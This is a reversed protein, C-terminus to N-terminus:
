YKAVILRDQDFKYNMGVRFINDSFRSNFAPTLTAAPTVTPYTAISGFDMHLYELKGTWNGFLSAEVGAGVTWGARIFNNEFATNIANGIPETVTGNITIEAIAVGATMYFVWGPVVTTGLRGRLTTFWSLKHDLSIRVPADVPLLGANCVAGPCAFAVGGHQAAAQLDGEVGVLWINSLWNYGAQAGIFGGDLRSSRNDGFLPDGSGADSLMTNALARGASWGGNGGAYLGAWSWGGALPAKFYALPGRYGNANYGNAATAPARAKFYGPLPGFPTDPGYKLTLFFKFNRGPLLIEDKHFQTSNRIEDKLLNDGVIGTRVEVPGWPSDRWYHRHSVEARLNNYGATPTDFQAIETQAFAHLLGVRVFWNDDRWYAGAGVRMPPMLPVNSGDTFTARVVDFQGDLGFMGPGLPLADWQWGVEAGRFIADRQSYITQLFEGGPGPACTAFDASCTNGTPQRFIYGNYYTYYAKGDFRFDGWVRKLGIEASNGTEINLNPNGIEFTGPADHAGHAFLELAAPSRQIRQVTASAVLYWPLDKLVSFSISKPTFDLSQPTTTIVDPPPLFNDPFSGSAGDLRDNELRGALLTRWTDTIQLVNYFYGASQVTRAAGLLTGADGNTDIQSHEYQAGGTVTLFGLPTVMPMSEVEAKGQHAHNKFTANIQDFDIANLGIEDHKYDTFGAWYRVAAVAISDPRYEGKSIIKSQEMRIHTGSAAGGLTPVHYDTAFRTIAVGAYGGDFLYSGGLAGGETHLSSNPQRGNVPPPPDPPFLYPYAPIRYDDAHRAFVDAHIAANRSGADLLLGSQWGNDVTTVGTRLEAAIGLPPAYMPIRNNIAEVVGGIAQSGYRLAEPGRYIETKDITLPDLPVGHDQGLNSVDSTGTGNEQLRVHFDSLGRLVPRSAGPALGASTAGPQSFFLNGFDQTTNSQIQQSNQTSLPAYSGNLTSPANTTAETAAPATTAPRPAAPAAVRPTPAGKPAAQKPAAQRRPTRQPATM